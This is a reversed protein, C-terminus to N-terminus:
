QEKSLFLENIKDFNHHFQLSNQHMQLHGFPLQISTRGFRSGLQVLHLNRECLEVLESIKFVKDIPNNKDLFNKYYLYEAFEVVDKSLGRSFVYDTILGINERFWAVTQSVKSSDYVELADFCLRQTRQSESLKMNQELVKSDQLVNQVDISEGTFLGMIERVESPVESDYWIEFGNFFRNSDILYVQGTKSKKLSITHRKKNTLVVKDTKSPAKYGFITEVRVEKSGGGQISIITENKELINKIKPPINESTFFDENLHGELKATQWGQSRNTTTKNSSTNM